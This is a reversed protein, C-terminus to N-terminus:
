AWQWFRFVFSICVRRWQGSLIPLLMQSRPVSCWSLPRAVLQLLPRWANPESLEAKPGLHITEKRPLWLLWHSKLPLLVLVAAYFRLHLPCVSRKSLDRQLMKAFYTSSFWRFQSLNKDVALGRWTFLPRIPVVLLLLRGYFSVVLHNTCHGM